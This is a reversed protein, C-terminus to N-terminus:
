GILQVQMATISMSTSASLLFAAEAAKKNLNILFKSFPGEALQEAYQQCM